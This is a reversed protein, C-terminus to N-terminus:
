GFGSNRVLEKYKVEMWMNWKKAIDVMETIPEDTRCDVLGSRSSPLPTDYYGCWAFGIVQPHQLGIEMLGRWIEEYEKIDRVPYASKEKGEQYISAGTDALLVPGDWYRTVQELVGYVTDPPGMVNVSLVDIYRRMIRVAYSPLPHLHLTNRDGLILHNSDYKRISEVYVRYWQECIMEMFNAKDELMRGHEVYGDLPDALKEIDDWTRIPIGYTKRWREVSGYVRHMLEIWRLRGESGRLTADRIWQHYGALSSHWPPNHCFHYGILNPNDRVPVVQERCKQEVAERFASSFVDPYPPGAYMNQRPVELFFAFPYNLEVFKGVEWEPTRRTLFKNDMGNEITDPNVASPGISPALYNFGWERHRECVSRRWAEQTVYREKLNWPMYTGDGYHNIGRLYCPEDAPNLLVWKNRVRVVRYFGSKGITEGNKYCFM